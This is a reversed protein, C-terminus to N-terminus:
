NADSNGDTEMDAIDVIQIGDDVAEKDRKVRRSTKAKSSSAKKEKKAKPDKKRNDKKKDKAGEYEDAFVLKSGGKGDSVYM